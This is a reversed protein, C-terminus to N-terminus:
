LLLTKVMRYTEPDDIDIFQKDDHWRFDRVAKHNQQMVRKGTSDLPLNRLECYYDAGFLVPSGVCNAAIPRIIDGSKFAAIMARLLNADLFPQDGMIFFCARSKENLANTGIRISTAQGRRYADNKIIKVNYKKLIPKLREAEHGTVVVVDAIDAAFVANLVWEILPQNGLPLLLKNQGMRSSLGAALVVASFM